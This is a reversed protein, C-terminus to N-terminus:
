FRFYIFAKSRDVLLLTSVFLTAYSAGWLWGTRMTRVSNEIISEPRVTWCILAVLALWGWASTEPDPVLPSSAQGFLCLAFASAQDFNFLFLIWGASVLFMTMSKQVLAPLKDWHEKMGHYTVILLGHYLGWIMFQWAAGHWLGCVAFVILINRNFASNGGLPRYIYDRIWSGLTIHWRRWFDQPNLSEYPRNFNQPFTFGFLTALGIAVLSYGYFDFYIQFSYAFLVYVCSIPSLSAASSALPTVYESLGDAILVKAALGFCIYGFGRAWDEMKPRFRGMGRLADAVNDYRLIPGAVLHPFFCIYLIFNALSPRGHLHGRHRDISYSVLHFTFFSVGAPLLKDASAGLISATESPLGLVSVVLFTMYKYYLLAGLPGSIALLLLWRHREIANSYTFAWTWIICGALVIIHELGSFGYFLFSM